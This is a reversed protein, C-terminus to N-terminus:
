QMTEQTTPAAAKAMPTVGPKGAPPKGPQPAAQPPGQQAKMQQMAKAADEYADILSFLAEVGDKGGPAMRAAAVHEKLRGIALKPDVDPLPQQQQGSLAARAQADIRATAEGGGVTTPLGTTRRELAEQPSILQAAGLEEAERQNGVRSQAIGSTTELMVDAGRLDAGRFFAASVAGDPGLVRALRPADAHQKWLELWQSRCRRRAEELGRRPFALKQADLQEAIRMQKGSKSETPDGGTATEPSVGFVDHLARIARDYTQFLSAPVDPGELYFTREKAREGDIAVRGLPDATITSVVASPGMLRCHAAVKARLLISTLARNVLRQQHIADAVHTKGRPSGRMHGCKWVSGPLEGHDYPYAVARVVHDAVVLAFMGTKIDDGPKVWVEFAEVGKRDLGSPSPFSHATLKPAEFGAGQLLRKATSTPIIRRVVLYRAKRYDEEGSTWYDPCAIVEERVGGHEWTEEMVPQGAEDYVPGLDDAKQRIVRHPGDSEVWLPYFLVDGHMQVLLSAAAILGAEDQRQEEYDLVSNAARAALVDGKTAHFPFATAEVRGQDVRAGWTLCLPYLRNETIPATSSGSLDSFVDELGPDISRRLFQEGMVIRERIEAEDVLKSQRDREAKADKLWDLVTRSDEDGPVPLDLSDRFQEPDLPEGNM